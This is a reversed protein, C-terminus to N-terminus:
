GTSGDGAVCVSPPLVFGFGGEMSKPGSGPIGYTSAVSRGDADEFRGDVDESWGDVDEFWGDADESCIDMADAPLWGPIGYTLAGSWGDAVESGM